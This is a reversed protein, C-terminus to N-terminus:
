TTLQLSLSRCPSIYRASKKGWNALDAFCTTDKATATM